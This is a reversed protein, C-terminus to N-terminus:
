SSDINVRKLAHLDKIYKTSLGLLTHLYEPPWLWWWITLLCLASKRQCGFKKVHIEQMFKCRLQNKIYPGCGRYSVLSEVACWGVLLNASLNALARAGPMALHDASVTNIVHLSFIRTKGSSSNSCDKVNWKWSITFFACFQKKKHKGYSNWCM